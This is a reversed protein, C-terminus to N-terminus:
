FIYFFFLFANNLVYVPQNLGGGGMTDDNCTTKDDSKALGNM